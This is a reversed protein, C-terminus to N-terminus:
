AVPDVITEEDVVLNYAEEDDNWLVLVAEFRVVDGYDAALLARNLATEVTLVAYHDVRESGDSIKFIPNPGEGARTSASGDNTGRADRLSRGPTGTPGLLETGGPRLAPSLKAAVLDIRNTVHRDMEAMRAFRGPDLELDIRRTGDRRLISYAFQVDVNLFEGPEHEPDTSAAADLRQQFGPVELDPRVDFTWGLDSPREGPWLRVTPGYVTAGASEELSRELERLQISTRRDAPATMVLSGEPSCAELCRQIVRAPDELESCVNAALVLDFSGGTGLGDLCTEEIPQRHIRAHVNPGTTELLSELITAGDGPEIAHYEVLADSPLYEFLGLAPGGVGAGVDLVRLHRDLLAREALDELVYHVSAYYAPLHYLAYGAAADPGYEVPAGRHYRRKLDRIAARLREGSEGAPWDPGYREVLLTELRDEIRTPLARVTERRPSVPEESVPVFTDDDREIVRLALAEERIVQRVVAPHPRSEVYDAIEAPDLPRIERLYKANELIAARETPM